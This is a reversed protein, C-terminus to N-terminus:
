AHHCAALPGGSLCMNAHTSRMSSPAPKRRWREPMRPAVEDSDHFALDLDSGSGDNDGTPHAGSVPKWNEGMGDKPPSTAWCIRFVGLLYRTLCAATEGRVAAEYPKGDSIATLQIYISGEGPFTRLPSRERCGFDGKSAIQENQHKACPFYRGRGCVGNGPDERVLWTIRQTQWPSYLSSNSYQAHTGLDLVTPIKLIRARFATRGRILAKPLGLKM